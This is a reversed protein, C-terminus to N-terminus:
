AALATKPSSLSRFTSKIDVINLVKPQYVCGSTFLQAIGTDGCEKRLINIGGNVDANLLKGNKQRYLGRKVRKGSFLPVVSDGYNPIPDLDAASAKSTYSEERIVLDIGFSRLKYKLIGLLKAHPISVFNQNNRKGINIEQKWQSNHGIVVKGFDNALCENLIFSSVKHLFDHIRYYRKVSKGKLHRHKNNSRLEACQKNYAANIKKLWRGNILVPNYDPQNSVLTALRDLGLDIALVRSKDLLAMAADGCKRTRVWDYVVEFIYRNGLPIIRVEKVQTSNAKANYDQQDCTTIKLPSLGLQKAFCIYGDKICFSNRPIYVASAERKYKPLRPRGLYKNPSKEYDKKAAVYSKWDSGVMQTIRQSVGAPLRRYLEIDSESVTGRKLVKDTASDSVKRGEYLEHRMLYNTRNYLRRAIQCLRSVAKHNGSGRSILM